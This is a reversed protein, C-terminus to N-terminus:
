QTLKEISIGTFQVSDGDNATNRVTFSIYTAAATNFSTATTSATISTGASFFQGIGWQTSASNANFFEAEITHVTNAAGNDLGRSILSSTASGTGFGIDWTKEGNSVSLAQARIRIGDTVALQGAPIKYTYVTSSANSTSGYPTGDAVLKPPHNFSGFGSTNFTLVTSSASPGTTGLRLKVTNWTFNAGTAFSTSTANTSTSNTAVMGGFVYELSSSFWETLLKGVGYKTVPVCPTLTCVSSPTDSAVSSPIVLRAGTGGISTSSAAELATAIEIIGRTSENADAAGASVSNDVYWKTPITTTPSGSTILVREDYYIQNPFTEQGNAQARLIQIVPFDTIKVNAGRRHAFQLAAVTTTGTSPSVGRIMDTVSTGSVTGCVFEAQASGEDITFCNYGSLAGGGRIANATLTMGDGSSALPSQLSTEFVAVSQPLTAGVNEQPLTPLGIFLSLALGAIFAIANTM